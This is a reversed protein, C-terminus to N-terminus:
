RRVVDHQIDADNNGHSSAPSGQPAQAGQDAESIVATVDKAQQSILRKTPLQNTVVLPSHADRGTNLSKPSVAM